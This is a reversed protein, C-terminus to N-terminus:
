SEATCIVILSDSRCLSCLEAQATESFGVHCRVSFIFIEMATERVGERRQRQPLWRLALRGHHEAHPRMLLTVRTVRAEGQFATHPGGQHPFWCTFDPFHQSKM